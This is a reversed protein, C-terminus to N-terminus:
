VFGLLPAGAGDHWFQYSAPSWALLCLRADNMLIMVLVAVGLNAFDPTTWSTRMLMTAAACALLATSLNHFSSCAGVLSVAFSGPTQFTTGNWIIDPRLLALMNGVLAADARLLEPTLLQFLIPGWVLHASLAGIVIGAAHLERDARGAVLLYLTLVSAILGIAFRYAIFSSLLIAFLMGFVFVRDSTEASARADSRNIRYLAVFCGFWYIYNQLALSQGFEALSGFNFLLVAQNAFLAAALWLLLERRGVPRAFRSPVLTRATLDVSSM